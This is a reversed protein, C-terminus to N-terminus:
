AYKKWIQLSCGLGQVSDGSASMRGVGDVRM